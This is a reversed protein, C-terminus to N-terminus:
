FLHFFSCFFFILYIRYTHARRAIQSFFLFFIHHLAANAFVIKSCLCVIHSQNGWQLFFFSFITFVGSFKPIQMHFKKMLDILRLHIITILSFHRCKESFRLNESAKERLGRCSTIFVLRILDSCM